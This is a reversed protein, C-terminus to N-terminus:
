DAPPPQMMVQGPVPTGTDVYMIRFRRERFRWEGDEGLSLDDHYFGVIQMGTGGKPRVLEHITSRAIARQGSVEIVSGHNTQVCLEARGVAAAIGAAVNAAGEFRMAMPGAAPGGMDWVGEDTFVQQLAAWDRRNLADTYRNLVDLIALHAVPQAQVNATSMM